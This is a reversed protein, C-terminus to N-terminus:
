RAKSPRAPAVPAIFRYGRRSLTEVFRPNEASDNLAERIKNIATALSHDFDVNTSKGWVLEQLEERTVIQGPRQLLAALVRFPQSQLKIRFGGRWIEGTSLNAEFLAFAIRTQPRLTSM